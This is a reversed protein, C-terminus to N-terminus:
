FDKKNIHNSGGAPYRRNIVATYYKGSTQLNHKGDYNNKRIINIYYLSLKTLPKLRSPNSDEHVASLHKRHPNGPTRTQAFKLYAAIGRLM